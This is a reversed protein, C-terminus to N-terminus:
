SHMLYVLFELLGSKSNRGMLARWFWGLLATCSVLLKCLSPMLYVLFGLLGSKSNTDVLVGLMAYCVVLVVCMSHMLYVLLGLLYVMFDGLLNRM